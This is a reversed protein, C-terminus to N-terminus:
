PSHLQRRPTLLNSVLPSNRRVLVYSWVMGRPVVVAADEVEDALHALADSRCTTLIATLQGALVALGASAFTGTSDAFDVFVEEASSKPSVM